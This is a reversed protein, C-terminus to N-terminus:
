KAPHQAHHTLFRQARLAMNRQIHNAYLPIELRHYNGERGILPLIYDTPTYGQVQLLLTTTDLAITLTDNSLPTTLTAPTADTHWNVPNIAIRNGDSLLPIACSNDRVSNYCITVGLDASDRAPLIYHTQALDDTTVRWGIVYAAVLRSYTASDMGKLLNVVALAGQSFGALIFPRGGNLHKLYYDFANSVDSLPLPTRAQTLSDSTFSQLSCQRYYPSFFNLKGSFLSDVGVMEGLLPQRLSDNYTDAYHCSVGNRTYDGTETSIIYFIDVPAQRDSIYWQSEEAYNPQTPTAELAVTARQQRCSALLLAIVVIQLVIRKSMINQKNNRHCLYV